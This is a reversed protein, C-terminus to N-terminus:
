FKVLKSQALIGEESVIFLTYIGHSLSSLNMTQLSHQYELPVLAVRNGAIDFVELDANMNEDLSYIFSVEGNTPNPYVSFSTSEVSIITTNANVHAPIRTAYFVRDLLVGDNVLLSIALHSYPSDTSAIAELESIQDASLSGVADLQTRQITLLDTEDQNKPVISNLINAAEIKDDVLINFNFAFWQKENESITSSLMVEQYFLDIDFPNSSNKVVHLVHLLEAYDAKPIATSFDNSLGNGNIIFGAISKSLDDCIEVYGNSSNALDIQHGCSATSNISNGAISINGSVFSVGFNGFSTMPNTSAIDAALGLGNNSIFSNRGAGSAPSPSSGIDGTMNIADVGYDSYNYLYNNLIMPMTSTIQVGELHIAINSESICNSSIENNFSQDFPTFYGIGISKVGEQVEMNITNCSTKTDLVSNEYIGYFFCNGIENDTIHVNRFNEVQIGTEFGDIKNEKIDYSTGGNCYIASNNGAWETIQYQSSNVITNDGILTATCHLATIQHEFGTFSNTVQIENSEVKGNRDEQLFVSQYVNTFNNSNVSISRDGTSLVGVFKETTFDPAIFDNQTISEFYSVNRSTIGMFNQDGSWSCKLDDFKPALDDLLFTNGSISRLYRGDQIAVGAKCNSFLNNTVRVDFQSMEFGHIARQANKFTCENIIGTPVPLNADTVYFDLGRWTGDIDCPRLVSNNARLQAGNIFDIGACEGFVLDVNTLDLTANDVTVIMFDPIFYKGDWVEDSTILANTVTTFTTGVAGGNGFNFMNTGVPYIHNGSIIANFFNIGNDGLLNYSEGEELCLTVVTPCETINLVTFTDLTNANVVAIQVPECKCLNQNSVNFSVSTFNSISYDFGDIQDPMISVFGNAPMNPVLGTSFDISSPTMNIPMLANPNPLVFLNSSNAKSFYLNGDFCSQLSTLGHYDWYNTLNGNTWLNGAGSTANFTNASNAQEVQLRVPHDGGITQTLDIQGLYTLNQNFANVFGGGSIYLYDGNPSYELGSIKREFNRLWDFTNGVTANFDEAQHFLGVLPLPAATFEIQLESITITNPAAALSAPDFLYIEQEDDAESRAMVALSNEAPSLEIPSGAAMLSWSYGQVQSSSGTWIIADSNSITFRDIFFTTSINGSGFAQTRRQAYIDHDGGVVVSTRSTAKGNFYQYNTGSVDIIRDQIPNNAGDLVYSASTSNVEILSYALFCSQYGPNSAPFATPALNYIVFWQNPFGPRRVIQIEDDGASANMDGGTLPLYLGTPTFIQLAATANTIVGNHLTFFELEDCGNIGAQAPGIRNSATNPINVASPIGVTWDIFQHPTTSVLDQTPGSQPFGTVIPWVPLQAFASSCTLLTALVMLSLSRIM